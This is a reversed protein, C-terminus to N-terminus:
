SDNTTDGKKLENYMNVIAEYYGRIVLSLEQVIATQRTLSYNKTLMIFSISNTMKQQFNTRDLFIIRVLVPEDNIRLKVEPILNYITYNKNYPKGPTLRVIDYFKTQQGQIIVYVDNNRTLSNEICWTITEINLKTYANVGVPRMVMTHDVMISTM